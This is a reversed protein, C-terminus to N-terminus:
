FSNKSVTARLMWATKEFQEMIATLFDANGDDGLNACTHVDDRLERILQEYDALLLTHMAPALPTVDVSEKLSTLELFKRM